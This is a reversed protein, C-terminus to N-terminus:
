EPHYSVVALWAHADSVLPAVEAHEAQDDAGHEEVVAGSGAALM